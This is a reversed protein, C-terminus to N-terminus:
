RCVGPIHAHTNKLNDCLGPLGGEGGGGGRVGLAGGSVCGLLCETRRSEGCWFMIRSLLRQIQTM